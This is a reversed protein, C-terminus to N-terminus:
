ILGDPLIYIDDTPTPEYENFNYEMKEKIEDDAGYLRKPNSQHVRGCQLSCKICRGDKHTSDWKDVFKQDFLKFITEFNSTNLNFLDRPSLIQRLQISLDSHNDVDVEVGTHCCPRVDGNSNVYVELNGGHATSALCSVEGSELFEHNEYKIPLPKSTFKDDHIEIYEKIHSTDSDYEMTSNNYKMSPKLTYELNGDKDYVAFPRTKNSTWDEFGYAQKFTIYELKWDKNQQIVDEIQHENHNFILFEQVGFGGNDTFTRINRDLIDWKVNRRYLDNTDELGDVSFVVRLKQKSNKSLKGLKEWFEVPKAGGNTRIDINMSKNNTHFYEVIEYLDKCVIPDGFNGCINMSGIKQIFESSYWKKIHDITIEWLEINSTRVPTGIIFRPCIPCASNCKTTLELHFHFKKDKSQFRDYWM